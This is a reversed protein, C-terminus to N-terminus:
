FDMSNFMFRMDTVHGVDLKSIDGNFKSYYFMWRMDTVNSVNWKSIDGNFRSKYFMYSMNTINSVDIHNLDCNSGNKEIEQKILKELHEKDKAIIKKM